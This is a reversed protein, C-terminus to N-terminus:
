VRQTRADLWRQLADVEIRVVKASLKVCPLGEDARWRRVTAVSVGLLDAVEDMTLYHKM